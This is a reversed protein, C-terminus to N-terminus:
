LAQYAALLLAYRAGKGLGVLLLFVGLRIRMIGGVFTLADGGVPLWALLLTWYGYRGFWRRGTALRAEDLPFWRTNALRAYHWGIIWNVVSGLTNGATASVWLGGPDHGAGLLALFMVESYFPLLTAAGFASLFLVAYTTLEELMM